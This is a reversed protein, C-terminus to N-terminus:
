GACEAGAAVEGVVIVGELGVDGDVVGIGAVTVGGVVPVRGGRGRLSIVMVGAGALTAGGGGKVGDVRGVVGVVRGPQQITALQSM